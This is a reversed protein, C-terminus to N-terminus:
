FEASSFAAYHQNLGYILLTSIPKSTIAPVLKLVSRLSGGVKFNTSVELGTGVGIRTGLMFGVLKLGMVESGGSM